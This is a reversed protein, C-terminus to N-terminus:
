DRRPPPWQLVQDTLSDLWAPPRQGERRTLTRSRRRSNHGMRSVDMLGECGLRGYEHWLRWWLSAFEDTPESRTQPAKNDRFGSHIFAFLCWRRIHVFVDVIYLTQRFVFLFTRCCLRFVCRTHVLPQTAPPSTRCRNCNTRKVFIWIEGKRLWDSDRFSEHQRGTWIKGRSSKDYSIWSKHGVDPNM